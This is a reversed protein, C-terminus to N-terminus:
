DQVYVEAKLNLSLGADSQALRLENVSVFYKNHEIAELYALLNALGGRVTIEVSIKRLDTDAMKIPAALALKQEVGKKEAINELEAIFNIEAGSQLFGARLDKVLQKVAGLRVQSRHLYRTKEYKAELASRMEFIQQNLAQIGRYYPYIVVAGLLLCGALIAATM